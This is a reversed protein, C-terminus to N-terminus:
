QNLWKSRVQVDADEYGLHDYFSLVAANSARVMLQVKVAGHEHLWYEGAAMLQRGLGTGRHSEGVALYYIWGRHGDSGVMITGVLQEDNFAGLVTSTAGDLARQADTEPANWPRTLGVQEWLEVVAPFDAPTLDRIQMAELNDSASM